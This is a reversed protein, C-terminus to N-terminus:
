ALKAILWKKEFEEAIQKTKPWFNTIGAHHGYLRYGSNITRGGNPKSPMPVIFRRTEGLLYVRLALVIGHLIENFTAIQRTSEVYVEQELFHKINEIAYAVLQSDDTAEQRKAQKITDFVVKDFFGRYPEMLDYVLSPYDTPKHLFGHYPSLNHYLIWRLLVGSIFKSVADLVKKVVNDEANERRGSEFGLKLFYSEWYRRAHWAEIGIMKDVDCIKYLLDREVPVLWSMSKFKAQLLKKGIYAKKKKSERFIIQRSLINEQDPPLTPTVFVARPMNRRHIIVPIKYFACKEFFEQPFDVSEGYFMISHIEKWEAQLDGGKYAIKVSSPKVTIKSVYPLWIYVKRRKAM